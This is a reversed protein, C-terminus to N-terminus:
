SGPGAAPSLPLFADHRHCTGAGVGRAIDPQDSLPRAERVAKRPGSEGFMGASAAIRPSISDPLVSWRCAVTNSRRRAVPTSGETSSGLSFSM